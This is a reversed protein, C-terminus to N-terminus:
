YETLITRKSESSLLFSPFGVVVLPLGKLISISVSSAAASPDYTAVAVPEPNGIPASLDEAVPIANYSDFDIDQPVPTAIAVGLLALSFATFGKM